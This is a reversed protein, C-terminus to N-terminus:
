SVERRRHLSHSEPLEIGLVDVWVGNVAGTDCAACVSARALPGTCSGEEATICVAGVGDAALDAVAGPLRDVTHRCARITASVAVSQGAEAAAVIIARIGVRAAHAAAVVDPADGPLYHVEFYRVGAHLAGAANGGVALLAGATDLGIRRSGSRAAASIIEPLASHGFAEAGALLIGDSSSALAEIEAVIDAAPRYTAVAPAACRGCSPLGGSGIHIRTVELM